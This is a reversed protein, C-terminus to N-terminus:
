EPEPRPYRGTRARSCLHGASIIAHAHSAKALEAACERASQKERKFQFATDGSPLWDTSPSDRLAADVGGDAADENMTITLQHAPIAHAALEAELLKNVFETFRPGLRQVQDYSIVFPGGVM